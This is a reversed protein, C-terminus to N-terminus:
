RSLRGVVTVVASIAAAQEGRSIVPSAIVDSLDASAALAAQLADADAELSKLANAEQALEFL